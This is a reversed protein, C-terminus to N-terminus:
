EEKKALAQFFRNAEAESTHEAFLQYAERFNEGKLNNIVNEMLEESIEKEGELNLAPPLDGSMENKLEPLNIDERDVSKLRLKEAGCFPCELPKGDGLYLEGCNECRYAEFM